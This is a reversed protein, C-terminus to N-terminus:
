NLIIHKFKRIVNEHSYKERYYDCYNVSHLLIDKIPTKSVCISDHYINRFMDSDSIGIPKKVSLAIDIVSSIVNRGGGTPIYLFLNMTNANLFQLLQENTMFDTNIMLIIGEKKSISLCRNIEEQVSDKHGYYAGTIHLKIVANDYQSNIIEITKHFGKYFSALGFSGFIPINDETYQNIFSDITSNTTQCDQILKDVNEYIPRPIAYIKPPSEKEDPDITCNINFFESAGPHLLGINKINPILVYPNLWPMTTGVYNYIIAVLNNTKRVNDYFETVNEVEIYIYNIDKCKSLIDRFRLGFQYIGCQIVKHNVFLVNM